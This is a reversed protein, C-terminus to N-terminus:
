FIFGASARYKPRAGGPAPNFILLGPAAASLTPTLLALGVWAIGYGLRAAGRQKTGSALAHELCAM